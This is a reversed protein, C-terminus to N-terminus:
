QDTSKQISYVGSQQHQVVVFVSDALMMEFADHPTYKGKIAPTRLGQVLESSFIFEVEAQRAAEELTEVALGEEVHFRVIEGSDNPTCGSFGASVMWLGFILGSWIWGRGNANLVSIDKM